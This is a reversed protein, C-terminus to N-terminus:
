KEEKMGKLLRFKLRHLGKKNNNNNNWDRGGGAGGEKKCNGQHM